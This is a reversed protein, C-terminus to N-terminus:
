WFIVLLITGRTRIPENWICHNLSVQRNPFILLSGIYTTNLFVRSERRFVIIRRKMCKLSKVHGFVVGWHDTRPLRQPAICCCFSNSTLLSVFEKWKTFCVCIEARTFVIEKSQFNLGIADIFDPRTFQCVHMLQGFVIISFYIRKTNTSQRLRKKRTSAKSLLDALCALVAKSFVVGFCFGLLIQTALLFFNLLSYVFSQRSFFM